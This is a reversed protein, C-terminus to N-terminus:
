WSGDREPNAPSSRSGSCNSSGCACAHETAETARPALPVDEGDLASKPLKGGDGVLQDFLLQFGHVENNCQMLGCNASKTAFARGQRNDSGVEGDYPLNQRPPRRGDILVINGTALLTQLGLIVCPHDVAPALCQPLLEVTGSAARNLGQSLADKDTTQDSKEM